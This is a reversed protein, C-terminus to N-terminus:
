VVGALALGTAAFAAGFDRALPAEFLAHLQKFDRGFVIHTHKRNM